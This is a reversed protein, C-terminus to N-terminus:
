WEVEGRGMKMLWANAQSFHKSGFFGRYASLPSPHPAILILHKTADIHKALREAPKGWLMFVTPKGERSLKEVVATTFEEWGKKQHGGATDKPVTLVTNLLLVGQRAWHSLDGSELTKRGMDSSVEFLLNRLSPPWKVGNEVSFALGHAEGEGHYPDQGLIVVRVAEPPCLAFARFIDERSPYVEGEAYARDLFAGLKRETDILLQAGLFQKWAESLAEFM